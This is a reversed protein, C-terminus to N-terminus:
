FSYGLAFGLFPLSGWSDETPWIDPLFEPYVKCMFGSYAQYRYGAMLALKPNDDSGSEFLNPQQYAVAAELFHRSRGFLYFAGIIATNDKNGGDRGLGGRLGLNNKENLPFLREYNISFTLLFDQALHIANKRQDPTSSQGADGDQAYMFVPILILPILLFLIKM